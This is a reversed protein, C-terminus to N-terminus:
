ISRLTGTAASPVFQRNLYRPLHAPQRVPGRASARPRAAKRSCETFQKWPQKVAEAALTVAARGRYMVASEGQPLQGLASVSDAAEPQAISIVGVPIGLKEAADYANKAQQNMAESCHYLDSSISFDQILGAFPTLWKLADELDTAWYCNSLIGVRFGSNASWRIGEVLVPYYLFPEGGEFFIWEVTGADKAERLIRRINQSTMTGSQRPSGWVFCHDCELDCRYTLLLHLGRLNLFM